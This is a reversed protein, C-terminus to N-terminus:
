KLGHNPLKDYAQKLGANQSAQSGLLNSRQMDPHKRFREVITKSETSQGELKSGQIKSESTKVTEESRLIITEPGSETKAILVIRGPAVETVTAKRSVTSEKMPPGSRSDQKAGKEKKDNSQGSMHRADARSETVVNAPKPSQVRNDFVTMEDPTIMIEEGAKVIRMKGDDMKVIAQRDRASVKIIQIKDLSDAYSSTNMALFWGIAIISFASRKNM